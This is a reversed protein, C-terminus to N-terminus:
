QECLEQLQKCYRNGDVPTGEKGECGMLSVIFMFGVLVAAVKLGETLIFRDQSFTGQSNRLHSKTILRKSNSMTYVKQTPQLGM